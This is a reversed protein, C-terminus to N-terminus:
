NSVGKRLHLYAPSQKEWGSNIALILYLMLIHEHRSHAPLSDQAWLWHHFVSEKPLSPKTHHWAGPAELVLNLMISTPPHPLISQQPRTSHKIDSFNGAPQRYSEPQATHQWHGLFSKLALKSPQLNFIVQLKPWSLRKQDALQITIGTWGLIKGRLRPKGQSAFNLLSLFYFIHFFSFFM